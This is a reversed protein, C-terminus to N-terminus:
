KSVAAREPSEEGGASPSRTAPEPFLKAPEPVVRRRSMPGAPLPCFM